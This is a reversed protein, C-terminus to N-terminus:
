YDDRTLLSVFVGGCIVAVAGGALMPYLLWPDSWHWGPTWEGHRRSIQAELRRIQRREAVDIGNGSSALSRALTVLEAKEHPLLESRDEAESPPQVFAASSCILPSGTAEDLYLVYQDTCPTGAAAVRVRYNGSGAIIFSLFLGVATVVVGAGAIWPLM